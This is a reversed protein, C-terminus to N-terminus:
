AEVIKCLYLSGGSFVVCWPSKLVEGTERNVWGGGNRRALDCIAQFIKRVWTPSKWWRLEIQAPKELGGVGSLRAGSPVHPLMAPTGKSAYSALYGVASKRVWEIKTMGFNWWGQKDPKPLSRGLPLWLLVHYHPRLRKTLELVWVYRAKFGKRQCFKRVNGLLASIQKPTWEVEDRYTLTLMSWRGRFGGRTAAETHLRSATIVNKKMRGLRALAQEEKTIERVIDVLPKEKRKRRTVYSVLGARDFAFAASV